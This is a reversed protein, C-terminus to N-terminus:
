SKSSFRIFILFILISSGSTNSIGNDIVKLTLKPLKEKIEERVNVALKESNSDRYKNINNNQHKYKKNRNRSRSRKRSQSRSSSSYIIILKSEENRKINRGLILNLHLIM